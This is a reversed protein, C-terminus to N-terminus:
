GGQAQLFDQIEERKSKVLEVNHKPNAKQSKKWSIGAVAFLDYYSQKSQYVVGYQQDLYSVLEDLNWYTQTKIWTIVQAKQVM